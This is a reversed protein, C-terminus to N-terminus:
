PFQVGLKKLKMYLTSRGIALNEAFHNQTYSNDAIQELIVTELATLLRNLNLRQIGQHRIFEAFEAALEDELTGM